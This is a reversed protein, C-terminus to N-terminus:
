VCVRARARVKKGKKEKKDKKGKAGKKGKGDDKPPAEEAPPKLSEYYAALSEPFSGKGLEETFWARREAILNERLAAGEEDKVVGRLSTLGTIYAERNEAQEAQRKIRATQPCTLSASRCAPAHTRRSSTSSSPMFYSSSSM